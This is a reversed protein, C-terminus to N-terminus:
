LWDVFYRSNKRFVWIGCILMFITLILNSIILNQNVHGQGTIGLHMLEFISTLPNLAFILFTKTNEPPLNYLIPTAYFWLTLVTQVFFNVDRFRVNLSSTLLSVGLTFVLLWILAPLAMVFAALNVKFIFTLIFSFLILSILMNFFNALVISIPISEIPFKTKQLLTREHVISPTAKSLSLSFFQWPLLGSFLFAFYNPIHIFFSFIIGITLMQLVPNLIVWLFGFLARKYRAGIEKATMAYLFDFYYTIGAKNIKRM